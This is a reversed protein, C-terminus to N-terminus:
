SSCFVAGIGSYKEFWGEVYKVGDLTDSKSKLNNVM